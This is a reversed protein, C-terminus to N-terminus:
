FRIINFLGFCFAKTSFYSFFLVLNVQFYKPCILVLLCHLGLGVQEKISQTSTKPYPGTLRNPDHRTPTHEKILTQVTQWESAGNYVCSLVTFDNQRFVIYLVLIYLQLYPGKNVLFYM